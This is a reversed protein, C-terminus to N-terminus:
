YTARFYRCERLFEYVQKLSEPSTSSLEIVTLQNGLEVQLEPLGVLAGLETRNVGFSLDVKSVILAVKLRQM